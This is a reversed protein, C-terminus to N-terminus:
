ELIFNVEPFCDRLCLPNRILPGNQTEVVECDWICDDQGGTTRGCMWDNELKYKTFMKEVKLEELKNPLEELFQCAQTRIGLSM